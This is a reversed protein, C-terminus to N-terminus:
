FDGWTREVRPSVIILLVTAPLVTTIRYEARRLRNPICIRGSDVTYRQARRRRAAVLQRRGPSIYDPPARPVPSFATRPYIDILDFPIPVRVDDDSPRQHRSALQVTGRALVFRNRKRTKQEVFVKQSVSFFFRQVSFFVPANNNKHESRKEPSSTKQKNKKVVLTMLAIQPLSPIGRNFFILVRGLFYENKHTSIMIWISRFVFFQYRIKIKRTGRSRSHRDLTYKKISDSM